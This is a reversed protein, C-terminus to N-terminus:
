DIYLTNYEGHPLLSKIQLGSLRPPKGVRQVNTVPDVGTRARHRAKLMNPTGKMARPPQVGMLSFLHMM